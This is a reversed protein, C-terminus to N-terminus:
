GYQNATTMGSLPSASGYWGDDRGLSALAPIPRMREHPIWLRQRIRTPIGSAPKALEPM